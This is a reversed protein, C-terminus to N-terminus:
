RPAYALEAQLQAVKLAAERYAASINEPVPYEGITQVEGNVIRFSRTDCAYHDAILAFVAERHLLAMELEGAIRYRSRPQELIAQGETM